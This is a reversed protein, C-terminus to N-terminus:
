KRDAPALALVLALAPATATPWEGGPAGDPLTDPGGTLVDHLLGDGFLAYGLLWLTWALLSGQWPRARRPGTRVALPGTRLAARTALAIVAIGAAAVLLRPQGQTLRIGAATAAAAVGPLLSSLVWAVRIRPVPLAPRPEARPEGTRPVRAYLEEALSFVDRHRFRAATRDTIGQAELGAAIELADVAGECLDRHRHLLAKVPDGSPGRPAAERHPAPGPPPPWSVPAPPEGVPAVPTRPEGARSKSLVM